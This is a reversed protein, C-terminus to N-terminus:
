CFDVGLYRLTFTFIVLSLSFTEFATLIVLCIARLCCCM